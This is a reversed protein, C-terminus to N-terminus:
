IRRIATLAADNDPLIMTVYNFPRYVMREKAFLVIVTQM